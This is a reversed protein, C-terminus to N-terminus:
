HLTQRTCTDHRDNSADIKHRTQRTGHRTHAKDQKHISHRALTKDTIRMTQKDTTHRSDGTGQRALVKDPSHRTQSACQRSTQPTGQTEQAKDLLYRTGHNGQRHHANDAQGTLATGTKHRSFARITSTCMTEKNLNAEPPVVYDVDVSSSDINIRAKNFTQACCPVLQEGLKETCSYGQSVSM